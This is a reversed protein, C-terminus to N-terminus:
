QPPCHPHQRGPDEGKRGVALDTQSESRQERPKEPLLPFTAGTATVQCVSSFLVRCEGGPKMFAPTTGRDRLTYSQDVRVM